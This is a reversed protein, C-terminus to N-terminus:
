GEGSQYVMDVDSVGGDDDSGRWWWRGKGGIVM